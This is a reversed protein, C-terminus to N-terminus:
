GTGTNIGIIKNIGVIVGEKECTVIQGTQYIPSVSPDQGTSGVPSM